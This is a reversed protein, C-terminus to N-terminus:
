SRNIFQQRNLRDEDVSKNNKHTQNIQKQLIQQLRQGANNNLNSKTNQHIELYSTNMQDITEDVPKLIFKPQHQSNITKKSFSTKRPYM